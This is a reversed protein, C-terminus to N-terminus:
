LQPTFPGESKSRAANQVYTVDTFTVPAFDTFYEHLSSHESLTAFKNLMIGDELLSGTM